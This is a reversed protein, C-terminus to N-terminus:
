RRPIHNILTVRNFLLTNIRKPIVDSARNQIKDLGAIAAAAAAAEVAEAVEAEREVAAAAVVVVVTGKEIEERERIQDEIVRLEAM